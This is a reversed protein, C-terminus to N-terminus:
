LSMGAFAMYTTVAVSAIGILVVAVLSASWLKREADAEQLESSAAEAQVWGVWKVAVLVALIAVALGVLGVLPTGGAEYMGFQGAILAVLNHLAHVVIATWLQGTKLVVLALVIGMPLIALGQALSGHIFAFIIATFVVAFIPSRLKSYTNLAVGRFVLEEYFPALLVGGVFLFVTDLPSSAALPPVVDLLAPVFAGLFFLSGENAALLLATLGLALPINIAKSGRLLQLPSYETGRFMRGLVLLMAVGGLALSLGSGLGLAELVGAVFGPVLVIFLLSRNAKLVPSISEESSINTASITNSM